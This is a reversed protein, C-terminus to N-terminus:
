DDRMEINVSEDPTILSLNIVGPEGCRLCRTRFDHPQGPHPKAVIDPHDHSHNGMGSREHALTPPTKHSHEHTHVHRPEASPTM